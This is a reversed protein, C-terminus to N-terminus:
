HSPPIGQGLVSKTRLLQYNTTPLKPNRTRRKKYMSSNDSTALRKDGTKGPSQPSPVTSKRKSVYVLQGTMKLHIVLCYQSSLEILLVKGRRKVGLIKAGILFKDADTKSNPFSKAWNWSVNKIIKGSLLKALGRKIIEVEPLEPM